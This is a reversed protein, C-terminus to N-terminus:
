VASKTSLIGRDRRGQIARGPIEEARGASYADASDFMTVDADLCIDVLRTAEAVDTSGFGKFSGEGGFTGTGLSLVPVKLGSAGLLRHEM